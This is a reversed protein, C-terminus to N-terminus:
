FAMVWSDGSGFNKKKLYDSKNRSTYNTSLYTGSFYFYLMYDRFTYFTHYIYRATLKRRDSNIFYDILCPPVFKDIFYNDVHITLMLAYKDYYKKSEVRSVFVDM